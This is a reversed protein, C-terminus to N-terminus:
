AAAGQRQEQGLGAAVDEPEFPVAALAAQVARDWWAAPLREGRVAAAGLARLQAATVLNRGSIVGSLYGPTVGVEQAVEGHSRRHLHLLSRFARGEEWTLRRRNPKSRRAPHQRSCDPDRTARPRPPGSKRRGAARRCERCVRSGNPALYTNEETWTHGHKCTVRAPRAAQAHLRAHEQPTVAELHAPNCCLTTTCVGLSHHVHHGEPIPGVAFTYAFRHATMRKGGASYIGYGGSQGASWPWCSVSDGIAVKGWFREAGPPVPQVASPPALKATM